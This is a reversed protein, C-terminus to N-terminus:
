FPIDTTYVQADYLEKSEDLNSSATEKSSPYILNLKRASGLLSWTGVHLGLIINIPYCSELAHVMRSHLARSTGGIFLSPALHLGEESVMSMDNPNSIWSHGAVLMGIYSILLEPFPNMSKCEHAAIVQTSDVCFFSRKGGAYDADRRSNIDAGSAIVLMDPTFAIDTHLHSRIRVQQRLEFEENDKRLRIFSFNMPNGSPTTLYRYEKDSTLNEPVVEFNKEYFETLAHFCGIEFSASVERESKRYNISHKKAFDSIIKEIESVWPDTTAM